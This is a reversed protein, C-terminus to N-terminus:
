SARPRKRLTASPAVPTRVQLSPTDHSFVANQRSIDCGSANSSQVSSPHKTPPAPGKWATSSTM